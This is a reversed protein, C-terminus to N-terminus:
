SREGAGYQISPLCAPIPAALIRSRRLCTPRWCRAAAPCIHSTAKGINPHVTLRPGPLHRPRRRRPLVANTRGRPRSNTKCPPHSVGSLRPPELEWDALQTNNAYPQRSSVSLTRTLAVPLSPNGPLSSDTVSFSLTGNYLNVQDGSLDLGHATVAGRAQIFKDYEEWPQKGQSCANSLGLVVLLGGLAVSPASLFM